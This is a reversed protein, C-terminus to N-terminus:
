HGGIRVRGSTKGGSAQAAQAVMRLNPLQHALSPQRRFIQHQRQEDVGAAADAPRDIRQGPMKLPRHILQVFDIREATSNRSPPTSSNPM